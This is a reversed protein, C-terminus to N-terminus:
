KVTTATNRGGVSNHSGCIRCTFCSCVNRLLTIVGDEPDRLLTNFRLRSVHVFHQAGALTLFHCIPNLEASLPNIGEFPPLINRRFKACTTIIICIIFYNTVKDVNQLLDKYLYWFHRFETTRAHMPYALFTAWNAMQFTCNICLIKKTNNM